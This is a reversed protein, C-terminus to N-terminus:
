QSSSIALAMQHKHSFARNGSEFPALKEKENNSASKSTKIKERLDLKRPFLPALNLKKRPREDSKILNLQNIKILLYFIKDAMISLDNNLDHTLILTLSPVTNIM